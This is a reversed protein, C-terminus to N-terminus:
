RHVQWHAQLASSFAAFCSCHLLLLISHLLEILFEQGLRQSDRRLIPLSQRSKVGQAPGPAPHQFIGVRSGGWGPGGFFTRSSESWCFDQALINKRQMRTPLSKRSRTEEAMSIGQTPSTCALVLALRARLERSAAPSPFLSGM